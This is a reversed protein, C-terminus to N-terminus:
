RHVEPKRSFKDRGVGGGIRFIEALNTLLLKGLLEFYDSPVKTVCV